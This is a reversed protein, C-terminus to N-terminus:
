ENDFVEPIKKHWDTKKQFLDAISLINNESFYNGVIQMGVPLNNSFGVPISVAPLGALNVPTTYRDRICM